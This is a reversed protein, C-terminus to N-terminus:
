SRGRGLAARLLQIHKRYLNSMTQSDLQTEAVKILQQQLV